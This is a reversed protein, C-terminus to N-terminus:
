KARTSKGWYACQSHALSSSHAPDSTRDQCWDSRGRSGMQCFLNDIVMQKWWQSQSFTPLTELRLFRSIGSISVFFHGYLTWLPNEFLVASAGPPPAASVCHFLWRPNEPPDTNSWGGECVFVCECVWHIRVVKLLFPQVHAAGLSFEKDELWREMRM